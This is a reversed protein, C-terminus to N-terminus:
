LRWVTEYLFLGPNSAVDGGLLHAILVSSSASRRIVVVLSKATLVQTVGWVM